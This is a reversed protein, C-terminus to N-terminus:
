VLPQVYGFQTFPVVDIKTYKQADIERGILDLVKEEWAEAYLDVERGAKPDVKAQNKLNIVIQLAAAKQIDGASYTTSGLLYNLAM